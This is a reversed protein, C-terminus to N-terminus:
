VKDEYQYGRMCCQLEPNLLMALCQHTYGDDRKRNLVCKDCLIFHDVKKIKHGNLWMKM